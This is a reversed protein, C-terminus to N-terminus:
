ADSMTVEVGVGLENKTVTPVGNPFEIVMEKPPGLREEVTMGGLSEDLQAKAIIYYPHKALAPVARELNEFNIQACMALEQNM